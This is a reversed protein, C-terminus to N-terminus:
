PITIEYTIAFSGGGAVANDAYASGGLIMTAKQGKSGLVGTSIASAIAETGDEAAGFYFSNEEEPFVMLVRGHLATFQPKTDEKESVYMETVSQVGKETDYTAYANVRVNTMASGRNGGQVGNQLITIMLVNGSYALSVTKIGNSYLTGISVTGKAAIAEAVKKIEQFGEEKLKQEYWKLQDKDVNVVLIGCSNHERDEMAYYRQGLARPVGETWENEPWQGVPLLQVTEPPTELSHETSISEPKGNDRGCATMSLCLLAALLVALGKKVKM